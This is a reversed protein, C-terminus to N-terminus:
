ALCRLPRNGNFAYMDGFAVAIDIDDGPRAGEIEAYARHLNGVLREADSLAAFEGLDIHRAAELPSLGAEHAEAAAQQVFRLYSGVTDVAGLTCPPGHGPVVVAADFEMLRDLAVMAGAVSGMLVFPTGGNFILDGTFLVRHEPIWAVVDNTTHAATGFHHLEVLVDGVHLDLRHTFTVFPPAVTLAGWQVPDFLGDPRVIGSRVMADRCLHHGIITASPLLGNGNTHDGHHHTNVLMSPAAGGSGAIADLYAQTRRETACTDIALARSGDLVFGTNNIWWTGDPQVYAFVGPAVEEVRPPALSHDDDRHHGPTPPRSTSM